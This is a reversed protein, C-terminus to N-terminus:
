RAPSAFRAGHGRRARGRRPVPVAPLHRGRSPDPARAPLSRDERRLHAELAEKLSRPTTRISATSGDEARGIGANPPLGLMARWRGSVYFEQTRLDWEWLGDNAGEAALALREESRKLAQEARAQETVDHWLLTVAALCRLFRVQLM